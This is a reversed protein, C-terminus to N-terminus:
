KLKERAVIRGIEAHAGSLEPTTLKSGTMYVAIFIPRREPPYTIVLDNVAGNATGSKDGGTWSKPLGARVRDLGTKSATMWDILLARSAISLVDRTFIALMSDVMARPATTDRPDDPVNSNLEPEYRDLRTVNDGLTRFFETVSSPGGMARLLINAAANDSQTVAAAILDRVTMAEAGATHACPERTTLTHPPLQFSVTSFTMPLAKVALVPMGTSNSTPPVM